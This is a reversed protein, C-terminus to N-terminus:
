KLPTLRAKAQSVSRPRITGTIKPASLSDSLCIESVVLSSALTGQAFYEFGGKEWRISGDPDHRGWTVPFPAEGNSETLIGREYRARSYPMPSRAHGRDGALLLEPFGLGDAVVRPRIEAVLLGGPLPIRGLYLAEEGPKEALRLDANGTTPVAQEYRDVISRASSAADPSTSCYFRGAASILHLRLDFRDWYGTFFPQRVLRDLDAASCANGQRVWQAVTRSAELGKSAEGFLLEIVPDERPATTEAVAERDGLAELPLVVAEFDPDSQSAAEILKELEAQSAEITELVAPEVHEALIHAFAPLGTEQLLPNNNM